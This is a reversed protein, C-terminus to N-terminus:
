YRTYWGKADYLAQVRAPMSLILGEFVEAELKAWVVMLRRALEEQVREPGGHLAYTDFFEAHLTAKLAKWIHEIPNMDSSNPPWKVVTIKNDDFWGKTVHATHISANDQQFSVDNKINDPLTDIFPLLNDELINIYQVAKIHRYCVAL